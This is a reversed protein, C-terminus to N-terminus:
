TASLESPEFGQRWRLFRAPIGAVIACPPVDRSVVAGAGVISGSGVTVGPLIIASTGIDAGIEIRVPKIELQTQIIPVDIPIGTHQSGLVRAGPGFGVYDGIELDRADLFCQPGLWAYNGLVLRGDHRGQIYSQPGVFVNNGIDFTGIDRFLAGVGVELGNGCTKALSRWLVRRMYADKAGMGFCHRGYLEMLTASSHNLRLESAEQLEEPATIRDLCGHWAPIMRHQGDPM